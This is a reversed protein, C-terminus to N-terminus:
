GGISLQEPLFPTLATRLEELNRFRRQRDRELGHLIVKDLSVPVDPRLKRLSSVDDAAIRALTAAADGTQHPARGTLLCYLTAAVSYVDTREDLPEGRVQEPSAFLPTGMFAGTRTLHTDRQLSKSLGFDGIKVRGNAEVFCNSPKVDRHIVGLRHAAQLGEIVDVIVAVAQAIPLPGQRDVEDQLTTGQMLEMVIYPRGAEEYAALVFVCRPHAIQSTLKSERRFRSVADSSAVNERAILKLAVHRGSNLEEAEYVTGMGGSGLTRLLRYGGIFEQAPADFSQGVHASAPVVTMAESPSHPPAAQTETLAHGCRSCFMPRLDTYE